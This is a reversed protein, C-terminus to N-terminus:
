SSASEAESRRRCFIRLRPLSRRLWIVPSFLYVVLLGAPGEEVGEVLGEVGVGGGVGVLLLLLVGLGGVGGVVVRLAVGVDDVEVVRVVGELGTPEAARAAFISFFRSAMRLSARAVIFARRLEVLGLVVPVLLVLLRGGATGAM